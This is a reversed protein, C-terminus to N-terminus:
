ATPLVLSGKNLTTTPTLYPYNFFLFFLTADVETSAVRIQCHTEIISMNM